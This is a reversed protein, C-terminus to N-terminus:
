PRAGKPLLLVSGDAMCWVSSGPKFPHKYFGKHPGVERKYRVEVLEGIRVAGVPRPNPAPRSRRAPLPRRSTRAQPNLGAPRRARRLIASARSLDRREAATLTHTKAKGILRLFTERAQNVDVPKSVPNTVWDPADDLDSPVFSPGHKGHTDRYADFGHFRHHNASHPIRCFHCRQSGKRGPHPPYVREPIKRLEAAPADRIFKELTLDQEAQFIAEKLLDNYAGGRGRQITKMLATPGATWSRFEPQSAVLSPMFGKQRGFAEVGRGGEGPLSGDDRYKAKGTRQIESLSGRIETAAQKLRDKASEFVLRRWAKERGTM